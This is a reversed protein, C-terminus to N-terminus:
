LSVFHRPVRRFHKYCFNSKLVASPNNLLCVTGAPHKSSPPKYCCMIMLCKHNHTRRYGTLNISAKLIFDVSPLLTGSKPIIGALFTLPPWCPSSSRSLLLCIPPQSPHTNFGRHCSQLLYPQEAVLVGKFSSQLSHQQVLIKENMSCVLENRFLRSRHALALRQLTKLKVVRLM